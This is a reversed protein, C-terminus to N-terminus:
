TPDSAGARTVIVPKPHLAEEFLRKTLGRANRGFWGENGRFTMIALAVLGGAVHFKLFNGWSASTWSSTNVPHPGFM